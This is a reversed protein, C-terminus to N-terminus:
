LKLKNDYTVDERPMINEFYYFISNFEKYIEDLFKENNYEPKLKIVVQEYDVENVSIGSMKCFMPVSVITDHDYTLMLEKLQFASFASISFGPHMEYFKNGYKESYVDFLFKSERDLPDLNLLRRSLESIGASQYGKRSYLYEGVNL